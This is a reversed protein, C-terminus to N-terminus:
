HAAYFRVQGHCMELIASDNLHFTTLHIHVYRAALIDDVQDFSADWDGAKAVCKRIVGKRMRRSVCAARHHSVVPPHHRTFKQKM